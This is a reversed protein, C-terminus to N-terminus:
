REAFKPNAMSHATVTLLLQYWSQLCDLWMASRLAAREIEVSFTKTSSSRMPSKGSFLALDDPHSM